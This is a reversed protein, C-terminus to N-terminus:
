ALALEMLAIHADQMEPTMRLALNVLKFGRVTSVYDLAEKQDPDRVEGPQSLGEFFAAPTVGLTNAFAWMMSASLRNRGNEYKQVQQFTIGGANAMAEQSFGRQKRIFRLRRGVHVDVPNPTTEETM